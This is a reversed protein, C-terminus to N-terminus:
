VRKLLTLGVQSNSAINIVLGYNGTQGDQQLYQSALHLGFSVSAFHRGIFDTYCITDFTFDDVIKESLNYGVFGMTIDDVKLENKSLYSSINAPLNENKVVAVAIVEVVAKSKDPGMIFFGAGESLQSSIKSDIGFRSALDDLITIHEDVAGALVAEKGESINIQADILVHEFSVAQQVHTMNYCDTDLLLAIQGAITNHGSQIFSTPSMVKEEETTSIRLFKETDALSGLGTGVIIADPVKLKTDELCNFTCAVSM